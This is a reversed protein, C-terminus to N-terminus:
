LKLYDHESENPLPIYIGLDVSAFVRIKSYYDETELTTLVTTSRTYEMLEGNFDKTDRRYKEGFYDHWDDKLIGTETELITLMFWYYRNEVLTRLKEPNTIKCVKRKRNTQIFKIAIENQHPLQFIM